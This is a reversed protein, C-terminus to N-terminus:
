CEIGVASIITHVHLMGLTTQAIANPIGKCDKRFTACAYLNDKLLDDFLPISSFFNDFYLHYRGGVLSRSLKQVVKSGLAVEASEEKGTYVEFDSVYGNWSDARVWVKFGRKIPKKPLYQKLSSRGKFKIMAEDIGNEKSSKYCSLFSQRIATIVPSVKALRDYGPEGRPVIDDNNAFHVFSTLQLFCKRPIRSAIPFYHLVESTSWYDRVDPLRNIGMLIAFGFYAKMKSVNTEWTPPPGEGSHTASLCLSAYRNTESVIHDLLQPTFIADTPEGM